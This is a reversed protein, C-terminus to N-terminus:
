EPHYDPMETDNLHMISVGGAGAIVRVQTKGTPPTSRTIHVMCFVGSVAVTEGAGPRDRDLGRSASEVPGVDGLARRTCPPALVRSAVSITCRRLCHRTGLQPHPSLKFTLM